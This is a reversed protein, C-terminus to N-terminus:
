TGWKHTWRETIRVLWDHHNTCPSFFHMIKYPLSVQYGSIVYVYLVNVTSNLILFQHETRLLRSDTSMDNAGDCWVSCNWYKSNAHLMLSRHSYCFYPAFSYYLESEGYMGVSNGRQIRNFKIKNDIRHCWNYRQISINLEVCIELSDGNMHDIRMRNKEKEKRKRLCKSTEMAEYAAIWSM